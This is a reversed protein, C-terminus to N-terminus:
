LIKKDTQLKSEIRERLSTLKNPYTKEPTDYMMILKPEFIIFGQNYKGYLERNYRRFTDFPSFFYFYCWHPQSWNISKIDIGENMM